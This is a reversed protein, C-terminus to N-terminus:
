KGLVREILPLVRRVNKGWSRLMKVRAAVHDKQDKPLAPIMASVRDLREGGGELHPAIQDRLFRGALKRLEAVAEYHTRRDGGIYVTRIAGIGRLFRLGQSASGKSLGLRLILDDMALPRASIFLLGYIEGLSRPQGLIRSVQVFMEIIETELPSVGTSPRAEGELLAWSQQARRASVGTSPAVVAELNTELPMKIAESASGAGETAETPVPLKDPEQAPPESKEVILPM